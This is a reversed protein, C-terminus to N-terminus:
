VHGHNDKDINTTNGALTALMRYQEFLKTLDVYGGVGDAVELKQGHLWATAARHYLGEAASESVLPSMECVM